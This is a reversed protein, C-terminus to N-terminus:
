KDVLNNKVAHNAKLNLGILQLQIMIDNIDNNVIGIKGLEMRSYHCLDFINNINNIKLKNALKTNIKLTTIDKNLDM